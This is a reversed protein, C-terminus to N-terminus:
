PDYKSFAQEDYQAIPMQCSVKRRGFTAHEVKRNPKRPHFAVNALPKVAQDILCKRNSIRFMAKALSGTHLGESYQTEM